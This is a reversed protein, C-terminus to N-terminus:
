RGAKPTFDRGTHPPDEYSGADPMRNIRGVIDKATTVSVHDIGKDTTKVKQEVIRKIDIWESDSYVSDTQVGVIAKNGIIVVSASQIAQLGTVAQALKQSREENSATNAAPSAPGSMQLDFSGGRRYVKNTGKEIIAKASGRGVTRPRNDSVCSSICIALIFAAFLRAYTRLQRM